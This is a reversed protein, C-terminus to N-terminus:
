INRSMLEFKLPPLDESRQLIKCFAPSPPPPPHCTLPACSLRPISSRPINCLSLALLNQSFEKKKLNIWFWCFIVNIATKLNHCSSPCLKSFMYNSRLTCHVTVMSFASHYASYGSIWCLMTCHGLLSHIVHILAQYGAYLALAESSHYIM